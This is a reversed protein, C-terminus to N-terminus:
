LLDTSAAVFIQDIKGCKVRMSVFYKNASAGFVTDDSVYIKYDGAKYGSLTAADISWNWPMTAAKFYDLDAIAQAKTETAGKESAAVVFEVNDAMLQDLAATNMSEISAHINELQTSSLVLCIDAKKAQLKNAAAKLDEKDKKLDDVQKQLQEKQQKAQNQQWYYVGFAPLTVLLVALLGILFKKGKGSSSKPVQPEDKITVKDKASAVM